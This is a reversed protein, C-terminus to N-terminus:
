RVVVTGTTGPNPHDHYAFTGAKTFVAVFSSGPAMVLGNLPPYATHIPHPNSAVQHTRSDANIFTVQEGVRVTISAPSFGAATISVAAAGPVVPIEPSSAAPLAGAAEPSSAPSTGLAEEDGVPIDGPVLEGAPRSRLAWLVVLVIVAVVVVVGIGINKQM